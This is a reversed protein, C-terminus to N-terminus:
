LSSPDREQPLVACCPDVTGFKVQARLEPHDVEMGGVGVGVGVGAMFVMESFIWIGHM